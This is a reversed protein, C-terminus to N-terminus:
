LIVHYRYLFLLMLLLVNGVQPIVALRSRLMEVPLTSVDVGDIEIRGDFPYMGFIARLLSTKGSGTRGVIGVQRFCFAYM